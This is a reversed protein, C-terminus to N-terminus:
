TFFQVFFPGWPGNKTTSSMHEHHLIILHPNIMEEHQSITGHVPDENPLASIIQNARDNDGDYDKDNMAKPTSKDGIETVYVLCDLATEQM